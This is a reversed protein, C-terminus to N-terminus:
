PEQGATGTITYLNPSSITNAPSGPIVSSENFREEWEEEVAPRLSLTLGQENLFIRGGLYQQDAVCETNLKSGASVVDSTTAYTHDAYIVEVRLRCDNYTRDWPLIMTGNSSSPQNSFLSASSPHQGSFQDVAAQCSSSSIVPDNTQRILCHSPYSTQGPTCFILLATWHIIIHLRYTM